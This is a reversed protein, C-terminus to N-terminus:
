LSGGEQCIGNEKFERLLGYRKGISYFKNQVKNLEDWSLNIDAYSFHIALDRAYEQREKYTKGEIKFDTVFYSTYDPAFFVNFYEEWTDFLYCEEKNGTRAKILIM